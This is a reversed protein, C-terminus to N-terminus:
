SAALKSVEGARVLPFIFIFSFVCSIKAAKATDIAAGSLTM